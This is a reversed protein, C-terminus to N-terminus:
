KHFMNKEKILIGFLESASKYEKQNKAIDSIRGM